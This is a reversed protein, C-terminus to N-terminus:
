VRFTYGEILQQCGLPIGCRFLDETAHCQTTPDTTGSTEFSRLSVFLNRCCLFLSSCRGLEMMTQKCSTVYAHSGSRDTVSSVSKTGLLDASSLLRANDAVRSILSSRCLQPTNELHGSNHVSTDTKDRQRTSTWVVVIAVPRNTPRDNERFGM